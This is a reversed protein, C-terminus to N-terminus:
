DIDLAPLSEVIKNTELSVTIVRQLLELPYAANGMTETAWLNADNVIGSKKDTTVAQREMVWEIAPKGNVVYDYAEIPIDKVTIFNNYIVTTKDNINRKTDPDKTKGFKMKKVYFHKDKCANLSQPGKEGATFELTVPHSAVTEYDLHWHALDRGAQSFAQFDEFEKVVPIRPLEKSLNDKYRERYESSHLLGYIYYFIDTKTITASVSKYFNQFHKLGHDTVAFRKNPSGTNTNPFLPKVGDEQANDFYYLPFCQAGGDPQLCAVDDIMLAIHGDGRWNGKIMIAMNGSNKPFMRPMHLVMENLQRHFYLRQKSYPRYIAAVICEDQFEFKEGRVLEQKLGRSWSIKTPDVDIFSNVADKREKPTLNGHVKQFQTVQQNYFDILRTMNKAITEHSANFCWADRNTVVGLSFEDFIAKNSDNKSGILMHNEFSEDRQNLWDFHADPTIKKWSKATTI